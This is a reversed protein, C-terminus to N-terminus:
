SHGSIRKATEQRIEEPDVYVRAVGTKVAAAAVASAVAPAVHPDFVNPIVHDERLEEESILGAIAHVAALKM